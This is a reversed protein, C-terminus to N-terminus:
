LGVKIKEFCLFYALFGYSFFYLSSLDLSRFPWSIPVSIVGSSEKDHSNTSSLAYKGGKGAFTSSRRALIVSEKAPNLALCAVDCRLFFENYTPNVRLLVSV